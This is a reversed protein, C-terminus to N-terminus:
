SQYSLRNSWSSTLKLLSLFKNLLLKKSRTTQYINWARRPNFYFRRYAQKQLKILEAPELRSANSNVANISYDSFNKNHTEAEELVMDRLETGPNPIVLSFLATSLDLDCAFQITQQMEDITEGPFGLMFFGNVSIRAQALKSVVGKLIGIDLSKSIMKQIRLSGSEIGLALRYVGAASMKEIMEDDFFDARVGNPFSIKIDMRREVIMDFIRKARPMDINFSDDLIHFERVGYAEQMHQMEGIVAEPSRYRIDKGFIDHCYICTFPCGRSTVIPMFSHTAPLYEHSCDFNFYRHVDLLDYDQDLSDLDTIKERAATKIYQGDKKFAIGKIGALDRKDRLAAMLEIITLEGEGVVMLDVNPDHLIFEPEHACHPGGFIMTVDPKLSKVQRAAAFAYNSEVTMLGIGVADPAFEALTNELDADPNSSLRLDLIRIDYGERKLVSGIAILGLPMVRSIDRDEAHPRLLLIKM